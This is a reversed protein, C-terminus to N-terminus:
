GAGIFWPFFSRAYELRQGSTVLQSPYKGEMIFDSIEFFVTVHSNKVKEPLSIYRRFGGFIFPVEAFYYGTV